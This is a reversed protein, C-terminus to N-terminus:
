RRKGQTTVQNAERTRKWVIESISSSMGQGQGQGQTGSASTCTGAAAFSLLPLLIIIVALGLLFGLFILLPPGARIHFELELLLMKSTKKWELSASAAVAVDRHHKSLDQLHKM